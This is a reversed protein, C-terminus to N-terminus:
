LLQRKVNGPSLKYRLFGGGAAVHCAGQLHSTPPRPVCGVPGGGGPPNEAGAGLGARAGDPGWGLRPGRPKRHGHGLVPCRTQSRASAGLPAGHPRSPWQVVRTLAGRGRSFGTGLLLDRQLFPTPQAPPTLGSRPGGPDPSPPDPKEPPPSHLTLEAGCVCVLGRFCLGM